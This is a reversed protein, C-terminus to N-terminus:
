QEARLVQKALALAQDRTRVEGVFQAEQVAALIRGVLPGPEIGLENIIDDGTLIRVPRESQREVWIEELLRGTWELHAYWGSPSLAPGRAALHDCLSHVLVDPAADGSDRLLRYIARRTLESGLARLQGPRMHDRVVMRVYTEATRSLRLRRCIQEAMDAGLEQHGYFTIRGDPRVEKTAPKAIDHLLAAVKFFTHRRHGAMLHQQMHQMLRDAYALVAPLDPYMQVSVPVVFAQSVTQSNQDGLGHEGTSQAELCASFWEWACVTEFLHDLVPLFHEQPQGCDRAAELEPLVRTLLRLEDLYALWSAAHPTALLKLLEDRVREPAVDDIRQTHVRLATETEGTIEFDLQAALRVVRLMRLPDDILATARCLRLQRRGLDALGGTPDLVARMDFSGQLATPLSIALANVTLDRLHLDQTISPARLRVVDLTVPREDYVNKWVVRASETAEDLLVFAGDTRDALERAFVLAPGDVTIDIDEGPSGILLDRVYGGVLWGEINRERLLDLL